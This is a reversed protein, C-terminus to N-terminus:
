GVGDITKWNTASFYECDYSTGQTLVDRKAHLFRLM